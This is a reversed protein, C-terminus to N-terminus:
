SRETKVSYVKDTLLIIITTTRVTYFGNKRVDTIEVADVPNDEEDWLQIPKKEYLVQMYPSESALKMYEAQLRAHELSHQMSVVQDYTM